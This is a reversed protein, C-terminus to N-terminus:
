QQKFNLVTAQQKFDFTTAQMALIDMYVETCGKSENSVSVNFSELRVPVFGNRKIHAVVNDIIQEMITEDKEDESSAIVKSVTFNTTKNKLQEGFTIVNELANKMTKVTNITITNM